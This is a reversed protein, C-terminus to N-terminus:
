FGRVMANREWAQRTRSMGRLERGGLFGMGLTVQKGRYANGRPLTPVLSPERSM